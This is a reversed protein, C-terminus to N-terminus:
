KRRLLQEEERVAEEKMVSLGWKERKKMRRIIMVLERASEEKESM